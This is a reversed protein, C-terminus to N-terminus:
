MDDLHDGSERRPDKPQDHWGYPDNDHRSHESTDEELLTGATNYLLVINRYPSASKDVLTLRITPYPHEDLRKKGRAAVVMGLRYGRQELDNTLKAKLKEAENGCMNRLAAYLKKVPIPMVAREIAFPNNTTNHIPYTM